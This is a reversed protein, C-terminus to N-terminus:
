IERQERRRVRRVWCPRAALCLLCQFFHDNRAAPLNALSPGLSTCAWAKTALCKNHTAARTASGSAILPAMRLVVFARWVRLHLCILSTLRQDTPTKLSFCCARGGRGGRGGERSRGVVWVVVVEAMVLSVHVQVCDGTCVCARLCVCVCLLPPLPPLYALLLLVIFAILLSIFFCSCCCSPRLACKGAPPEWILGLPSVPAM